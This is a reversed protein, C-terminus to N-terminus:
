ALLAYLLLLFSTNLFSTIVVIKLGQHQNSNNKKLLKFTKIVGETETNKKDIKNKFYELCPSFNINPYKKFLNSSNNLLNHWIYQIDDVNITEITIKQIRNFESTVDELKQLPSTQWANDVCKKACYSIVYEIKIIHFATKIDNNM